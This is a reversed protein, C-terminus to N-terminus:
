YPAVFYNKAQNVSATLIHEFESRFKNGSTMGVLNELSVTRSDKKKSHTISMQFLRGIRHRSNKM